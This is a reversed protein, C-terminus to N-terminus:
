PALSSPPGPPPHQHKDTATSIPCHFGIVLVPPRSPPLRAGIDILQPPSSFVHARSGGGDWVCGGILCNPASAARIPFM